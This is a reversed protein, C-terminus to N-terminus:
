VTPRVAAVKIFQLTVYFNLNKKKVHLAQSLFQIYILPSKIYKANVSIATLLTKNESPSHM